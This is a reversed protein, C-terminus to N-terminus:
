NFVSLTPVDMTDDVGDDDMDDDDSGSQDEDNDDEDEDDDYEMEEDYENFNHHHRHNRPGVDEVVGQMIGLASNRFVDPTDDREQMEEEEDDESASSATSIEEVDGSVSGTDLSGSQVLRNLCTTLDKLSALIDNIVLKVDPFDLEVDAVVSTLLGVFGKEYMLKAMASSGSIDFGMNPHVLPSQSQLLRRCLEALSTYRSYRQQATGSSALTDKLSRAIGELVFKRVNVLLDPRDDLEYSEPTKKCLSSIVTIVLASIGRKKELAMDHTPPCVYQPHGTPLLDNLLYNLMMSRPKSPTVPERSQVRRSYNVFELKCNNYSGVLEALIQLLFLSYSFEKVEEHTMKAQSISRVGDVGNPATSESSSSDSSASEKKPSAVADPQHSLLETLIIQVVGSSHSLELTPKKPTEPPPPPKADKKEADKEPKPGDGTENPTEETQKKTLKHSNPNSSSWNALKAVSEVAEGFLEPNRLVETYKSRLLEGLEVHRGRQASVELIGQIASRMTAIIIKEDEVLSRIIIISPESIKVSSKGALRHNLHLLSQLGNKERFLIAYQSERTVRVLLRMACLIVTDEVVDAKIIAILKDMLRPFFEPELEPVNVNAFTPDLRKQTQRWEIERIVIEIILTVSAIWPTEGNVEVNLFEVFSDLFVVISAETAEYYRKESLLLGLVHACATIERAKSEKDDEMSALRAALELMRDHVWEASEWKGVARIVRSLEFPLDPHYILIDTVYNELNRAFEARLRALTETRTEVMVEKSKDSTTSDAKDKGKDTTAPAPPGIEPGDIDMRNDVIDLLSSYDMMPEFDLVPPGQSVLAASTSAEPPPSTPRATPENPPVAGRRSHLHQLAMNEANGNAMLAAYVLPRDFGQAAIRSIMADDPEDYKMGDGNFEEPGGLILNWLIDLFPQATGKDYDELHEMLECFVPICTARTDTLFTAPNFYHEQDRHRDRNSLAATQQSGTISSETIFLRVLSFFKKLNPAIAVLREDDKESTRISETLSKIINLILKLGGQSHFRYLVFTQLM